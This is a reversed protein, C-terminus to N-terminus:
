HTESFWFLKNQSLSYNLSVQFYVNEKIRQLKVMKIKDDSM